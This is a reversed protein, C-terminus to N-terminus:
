GSEFVSGYDRGGKVNGKRRDVMGNVKGYGWVGARWVGV